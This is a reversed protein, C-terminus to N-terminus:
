LPTTNVFRNDILAAVLTSTGSLEADECWMTRWFGFSGVGVPGMDQITMVPSVETTQAV